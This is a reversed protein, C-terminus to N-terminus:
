CTEYLIPHQQSPQIAIFMSTTIGSDSARFSNTHGPLRSEISLSGEAVNYEPYNFLAPDDIAFLVLSVNDLAQPIERPLCIAM